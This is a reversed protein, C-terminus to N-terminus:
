VAPALTPAGPQWGAPVPCRAILGRLVRLPEDVSRGVDSDHVVQYRLVGTPDIIFLARQAVGEEEILVGYDRCVTLATDSALPFELRGLIFEQWAEHCHVGDTSIGILSAGEAEFREVAANFALIETPCVFTFDAPYFILVLWRGRYDDLSVPQDLDASKTSPLSFQPAPSGLLSLAIKNADADRASPM